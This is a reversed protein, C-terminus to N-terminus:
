WKQGNKVCGLIMKALGRFELHSLFDNNGCYTGDKGNDTNFTTWMDMCEKDTYTFGVYNDNAMYKIFEQLSVKNDGSGGDMKNYLWDHYLGFKPGDM